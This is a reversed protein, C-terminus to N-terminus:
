IIENNISYYNAANQNSKKEEVRANLKNTLKNEYKRRTKTKKEM